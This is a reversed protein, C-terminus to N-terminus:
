TTRKHLKDPARGICPSHSSSRLRVEIRWYTSAILRKVESTTRRNMPMPNTTRRAYVSKCTVHPTTVLVTPNVDEDTKGRSTIRIPRLATDTRGETRRDTQRDTQWMPTNYGRPQLYRWLEKNAPCGWWELHKSEMRRYGIGLPVGFAPACFERPHSFTTM